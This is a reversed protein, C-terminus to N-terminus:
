KLLEECLKLIRPAIRERRKKTIFRYVPYSLLILLLGAFAILTGSLFFTDAKVITRGIGNIVIGLICIIIATIMGPHSVSKDLKRLQEMKDEAPPLYKQRIKLIENQQESSFIYTCDYTESKNEM